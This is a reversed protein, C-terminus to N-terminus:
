TVLENRQLYSSPTLVSNKMSTQSVTQQAGALEHTRFCISPAMDPDELDYNACQINQM